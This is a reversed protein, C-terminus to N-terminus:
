AKEFDRKVRDAMIKASLLCLPTGGGPHVSGGAFYLGKIKQSFNSHRLFAAFMSNSSAGYISGTYSSTNEEITRPELVQECTILSAIDRGLMTTLKRLVNKRNAAVLADWDQGQNAPVNVMVFWNECGEPADTPQEKSTINIYITPDDSITKQNFLCDFEHKYDASFFANHLDLEEFTGKIGWYFVMMSTSREQKLVKEPAEQEILLDRYTPVVDMNSVVL